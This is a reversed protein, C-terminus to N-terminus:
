SLYDIIDESGEIYKTVKGDVIKILTPGVIALDGADEPETNSKEDSVFKSNFGNGMDVTYIRLKDDYSYSYVASSLDSLESDEFDYYVVLYESDNMGFSSGALIEDYQITAELTEDDSSDNSVVAVTILYFIALFLLVGFVIKLITFVDHSYSNKVEAVKKENKIKRKVNQKRAM